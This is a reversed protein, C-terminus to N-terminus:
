AIHNERNDPSYSLERLYRFLARSHRPPKNREKERRANRILLTIRQRDAKAFRNMLEELLDHNGAILEDRWTEITHFDKAEGHRNQAVADLCEIIPDIDAERMLAGIYKIQRRWAERKKITQAFLVADRLESTIHMQRIRDPSLGVLREGLKQLAKMERKIQSKSKYEM